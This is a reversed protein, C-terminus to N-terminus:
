RLVGAAITRAVFGVVIAVVCVTLGGIGNIWEAVLPTVTSERLEVM